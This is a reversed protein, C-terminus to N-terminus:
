ALDVPPDENEIVVLTATLDDPRKLRSASAAAGEHAPALRVASVNPPAADVSDEDGVAWMWSAALEEASTFRDSPSPALAVSFFHNLMPPLETGLGLEALTPVEGAKMRRITEHYDAAAFPHAGTLARFALAGLAWLDVRHDVDGGVRLMEPAVTMASQRMADSTSIAYRGSQMHKALGFDLLKAVVQEACVLFVNDPNVDRHVIGLEHAEGLAATLQQVMRTVDPLPLTGERRLRAELTQGRLLEMVLFPQEDGTLGHELLRVSHASKLQELAKAERHFRVIEPGRSRHLRGELLKVAVPERRDRHKGLWVTSTTGVALQRVLQVKMGVWTGTQRARM